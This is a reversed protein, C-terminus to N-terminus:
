NFIKKIKRKIRYMIDTHEGFPIKKLKPCCYNIIEKQIEKDDPPVDLSLLLELIKQCNVPAIRVSDLMDIGLSSASLWGGIRQEIYIRERWNLDPSPHKECYILWERLSLKHINSRKVINDCNRNIELLREEIDSTDKFRWCYSKNYVEWVTGWLVIANDKIPVDSAAIYQQRETGVNYGCCHEDFDQIRNEHPVVTDDIYYHTRHYKKCIKLPLVRDWEALNDRLATYTHFKIGSYQAVAFNTRSDVGGTLTIWIEDDFEDQINKLERCLAKIIENRIWCRSKDKYRRCLWNPLVRIPDNKASLDIYQSPLLRKIGDLPTYPIPYYDFAGNGDGYKIKYNSINKQNLLLKLLHLSSSICFGYQASITYNCGLTGCVDMYLAEKTILISRGAWEKMENEANALDINEKTCSFAYGLLVNDEKTQVKLDRHYSLVLGCALDLHLFDDRKLPERMIIFQRRDVNSM